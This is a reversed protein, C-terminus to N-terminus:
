SWAPMAAVIEVHMRELAILQVHHEHSRRFRDAIRIASRARSAWRLEGEVAIVRGKCNDSCIVGSHQIKISVIDDRNIQPDGIEDWHVAEFGGVIADKSAHHQM